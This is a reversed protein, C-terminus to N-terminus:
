GPSNMGIVALLVRIEQQQHDSAKKAKSLNDEALKLEAPSVNKSRLHDLEERASIVNIELMGLRSEADMVRQGFAEPDTQQEAVIGTMRFMARVLMKCKATSQPMELIDPHCNQAEQKLELPHLMYYDHNKEEQGCGLLLFTFFLLFCPTKM